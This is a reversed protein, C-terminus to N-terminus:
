LDSFRNLLSVSKRLACVRVEAIKASLIATAALFPPLAPPPQLPPPPTSPPSSPPPPSPPPPSPAPIVVFASTPESPTATVPVGMFVGSSATSRIANSLSEAAAQAAAFSPTTIIATVLVSGATISLSISSANVGTTTALAAVYSASAAADFDQVSLDLSATVTVTAEESDGPLYPPPSPPPPSPPPSPPPPSPPPPQPQPIIEDYVGTAPNMTATGGAPDVEHLVAFAASSALPGNGDAKERVVWALELLLDEAAAVEPDSQLDFTVWGEGPPQSGFIYDVITTQSPEIGLLQSMDAPLSTSFATDDPSVPSVFKLKM